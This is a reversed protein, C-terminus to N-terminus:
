YIVGMQKRAEDMIEMVILSNDLSTLNSEKKNSELLNIFENVEYFIDEDIQSESIMEERGDRYIIKIETCSAIKNILISGEEGQIESPLYSNTIKSFNIVGEMDDYKCLLTGQADVGTHLLLGETKISNPKGFLAVMPHVGYVGIDMLSGNALERKFANEIIGSKFNDYRSSYQCNNAIYKRVKGIKHLNEKIKLFNPLATVRMAEMLLIENKRSIDVMKRAEDYNGAFAKECLVPKGLEMARIAQSSHMSNPSAIYIADIDEDKIMDDLNTFLKVDKYVKLFNKGSEETRSYLGKFVFREDHKAGDIFWHSIKGTGVIGFNIKRRM